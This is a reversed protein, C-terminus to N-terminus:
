FVIAPVYAIVELDISVVKGNEAIKMLEEASILQDEKMKIRIKKKSRNHWLDVYEYEYLSSPEFGEEYVFYAVISGNEENHKDYFSNIAQMAGESSPYETEGDGVSIKKYADADTEEKESCSLASLSGLCIVLIMLVSLIGKLVKLLKM